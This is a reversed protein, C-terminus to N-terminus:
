VLNYTGLDLKTFMWVSWLQDLLKPSLPLPYQSCITIQNLARYDVYFRLSGDEKKVFHIPICAHPISCCIFGKAQNEQLYKTLVELEPASMAYICEFPVQAGPQLNIPLICCLLLSDSNQKEFVDLYDQYKLPLCLGDHLYPM